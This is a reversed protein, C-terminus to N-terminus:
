TYLCKAGIQDLICRARVDLWPQEVLMAAYPDCVLLGDLVVHEVANIIAVIHEKTPLSLQVAVCSVHPLGLNNQFIDHVM